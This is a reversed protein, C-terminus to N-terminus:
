KLARKDFEGLKRVSSEIDARFEYEETSNRQAKLHGQFANVVARLLQVEEAYISVRAKLLKIYCVKCTARRKYGQFAKTCSHCYVQYNGRDFDALDEPYSRAQFEIDVAQM